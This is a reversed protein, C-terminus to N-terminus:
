IEVEDTAEGGESPVPGVELITWSRPALYLSTLKLDSFASEHALVCWSAHDVMALWGINPEYALARLAVFRSDGFLIVRQTTRRWSVKSYIGEQDSVILAFDLPNAVNPQVDTMGM